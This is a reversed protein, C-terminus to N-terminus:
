SINKNKGYKHIVKKSPKRESTEHSSLRIVTTVPNKEEGTFLVEKTELNFTACSSTLVVPMDAQKQQSHEVRVNGRLACINKESVIEAHDAQIIDQLSKVKINGNMDIKKIVSPIITKPLNNDHKSTKETFVLIKLTDSTITSQDAFTVKVDDKYEFCYCEKHEAPFCEM